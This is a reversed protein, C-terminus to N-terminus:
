SVKPEIGPKFTLHEYIYNNNEIFREEILDFILLVNIQLFTENDFHQLM